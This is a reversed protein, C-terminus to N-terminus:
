NVTLTKIQREILEHQDTDGSSVVYSIQIYKGDKDFYYLYAKDGKQYGPGEPETTQNYIYKAATLGQNTKITGQQTGERVIQDANQEPYYLAFPVAGDWGGENVTQVTAKTGKKYTLNEDTMVYLNGYHSIAKFGDPVRISYTKKESTFLLWSDEETAQKDEKAKEQLHSVNSSTNDLSKNTENKSKYVFYGVGALLGVIVIILVVELASFGKQYLKKM